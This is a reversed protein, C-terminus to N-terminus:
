IKIKKWWIYGKYSLSKKLFLCLKIKILSSLIEKEAEYFIETDIRMQELLLFDENTKKYISINKISNHAQRATKEAIKNWNPIHKEIIKASKYMQMVATFFDYYKRCNKNRSVSQENCIYYYLLDECIVMKDINEIIRFLTVYDEYARRDLPFSIDKIIQKKFLKGCVYSQLEKDEFILSLAEIKSLVRTKLNTNQPKCEGKVINIFQCVSMDANNKILHHYLKECYQASVYDDSDVFTIYDGHAQMLGLNRSFSIGKNEQHFIRIKEQNTYESLVEPTNDTSGDNVIIIEINQYSQSLLSDICKKIYKEVNYALVIISILSNNM